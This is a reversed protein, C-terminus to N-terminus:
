RRLHRVKFSNKTNVYYWMGIQPILQFSLCENSYVSVQVHIQEVHNRILELAKVVPVEMQLRQVPVRVLEWKRGQGVHWLVPQGVLGRLGAAMLQSTVFVYVYDSPLVHLLEYPLHSLISPPLSPFQSSPHPFPLSPLLSSSFSNLLSLAPLFPPLLSISYTKKFIDFSYNANKHLRPIMEMSEKVIEKNQLVAFLATM